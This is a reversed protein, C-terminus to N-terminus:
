YNIAKRMIRNLKAQLRTGIRQLNSSFGIMGNDEILKLQEHIFLQADFLEEDEMYAQLEYNGLFIINLMREIVYAESPFYTYNILKLLNKYFNVPYHKVQSSSVIYCAGPSFLLWKPVIPNIFIFELVKNFTSFYRNSRIGMYWSNNIELYQGEALHHSVFPTDVPSHHSSLFTYKKNLYVKKFYEESLHRGIMNGKALMMWEPLNEYNDIFFRFYDSINHGTHQSFTIKFYKEKLINKLDQDTSQDYIHYSDSFLTYPEPDTNFNSIIFFTDTKKM